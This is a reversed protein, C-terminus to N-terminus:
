LYIAQTTESEFEGRNFNITANMTVTQLTLKFTVYGLYYEIIEYKILEREFRQLSQNLWKEWM